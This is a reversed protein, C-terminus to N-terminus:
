IEPNPTIIVRLPAATHHPQFMKNHEKASKRAETKTGWVMADVAIGEEPCLAEWGVREQPSRTPEQALNQESPTKM